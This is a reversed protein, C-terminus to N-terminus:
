GISFKRWGPNMKPRLPLWSRAGLAKIERISTIMARRSEDNGIFAIVMTNENLLAM